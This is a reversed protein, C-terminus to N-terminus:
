KSKESKLKVFENIKNHISFLRDHWNVKIEGIYTLDKIVDKDDIPEYYDNHLKFLYKKKSNPAYANRVVYTDLGNLYLELTIPKNDTKVVLLLQEDIKKTIIAVTNGIERIYYKYGKNWLLRIINREFYKYNRVLQIEEFEIGGLDEIGEVKDEICKKGKDSEIQSIIQGENCAGLTLIPGRDNKDLMEGYIEYFEPLTMKSTIM